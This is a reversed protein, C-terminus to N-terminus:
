RLKPLKDQTNWLPGQAGGAPRRSHQRLIQKGAGSTYRHITELLGQDQQQSRGCHQQQGRHNGRQHGKLPHLVNMAPQADPWSGSPGIM